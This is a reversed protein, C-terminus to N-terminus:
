PGYVLNPLFTTIQPVYALIITAIVAAGVFPWVRFNLKKLSMEGVKTTTFLLMGVPPTILAVTLMIIIIMAFHIPDYGMAEGLPYLVPVLIIMAAFAEMFMGVIFLMALVMAMVIHPNTTISTIYAVLKTPASLYALAWG